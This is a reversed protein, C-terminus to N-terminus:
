MKKFNQPVTEKVKKSNKVWAPVGGERLSIKYYVTVNGQGGTWFVTLSAPNIFNKKLSQGSDTGHKRSHVFVMDPLEKFLLYVIDELWKKKNFYKKKHIWPM